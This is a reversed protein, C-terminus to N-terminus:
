AQCNPTKISAIIKDSRKQLSKNEAMRKRLRGASQSLSSLERGTEKALSTLTVGELVQRLLSQSQPAWHVFYRGEAFWSNVLTLLAPREAASCRSSEVPPTTFRQRSIRRKNHGADGLSGYM